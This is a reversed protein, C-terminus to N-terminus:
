PLIVRYYRNSRSATTATGGAVGAIDSTTLSFTFTTPTRTTVIWTGNLVAGPDGIGALTVTGGVELNHNAVTTITAVNAVLSANAVDVSSPVTLAQPDTFQILGYPAYNTSITVWNELDPSAQVEYVQNTLGEVRFQVGGGGVLHFSNTTVRPRSELANRDVAQVLPLDVDDLFAADLNASKSGDKIYRWELTNTGAAVTFAQIQWGSEGNIRLQRVGNLYFELFDGSTPGFEESSVRYGFSAPGPRCNAVLKLVTTQGHTITGSRVHFGGGTTANTALGGAAGVFWPAIGAANNTAWGINTRLAGAEFSDAILVPAFVATLSTDRAITGTAAVQVLAGRTVSYTFTTPNLVTVAASVVNFTPDTADNVSVTGGNALNHAAITTITATTVGNHAHTAIVSPIITVRLPNDLSLSDGGWTVFNFGNSAVATVQVVSGTGTPFSGSSPFVVGGASATVTLEYIPINTFSYELFIQGSSGALGDVAVYYRTGSRVAQTLESYIGFGTPTDDNANLATLRDVRTGTYIALLTDFNSNTTTISLLGDSPATFFYWVSKGGQKGVHLPEGPERTANLNNTTTAGVTGALELANALGDNFPDFARYIVQFSLPVSTNGSFDTAAVQIVNTGPTLLLPITWSNSGLATTSLGSNLRIFVQSVGIANTSPDIATGSLTLGANTVILGSPPNTVSMPGSVLNTIAVSPATTDPVGNFQVRLRIQGVTNTSASAVAIRYTTSAVATFNIFGQAIVGVDNTAAILTLNTLANGTYVAVVTDFSSGATDVLVPGSNSPSWNWWVSNAMNTVGAHSPEGFQTSGFTNDGFIVAGPDPVKALPPFNDNSPVTASRYPFTATFNTKGPATINLTLVLNTAFAPVNFTFVHRNDNAVADPLVGDNLFLQNTFVGPMTGIVTANNVPMLDNVTVTLPVTSGALLTSGAPPSLLAELLNDGVTTLARYANVRGGFSTNTALAAVPTTTFLIRNRVESYTMTNTLSFVLAAVGSVHAAAMSTGDQLSRDLTSIDYSNDSQFYTSAIEVGPAGVHVNNRGYNSYSALGDRRDLAAVSIINDLGFAAPYAAFQDINVGFNGASAVVLVGNSRAYNFIAFLQPDFSYTEFSCNLVKAGNRVAYDVCRIIASNRPNGFVDTAKLAMLRVNWAVGVHSRGNNPASGIVGAVRTGHGNDDNPDGSGTIGNIGFVDDVYTNADNDQADGVVEAPNRWMQAALDNHTYRIGSDIIGVIVNTSGVTIDWANTVGIDAGAVGGLQGQNRLGWLTGDQFFTDTPVLSLRGVYDPALTSFHGSQRLQAMRDRLETPANAATPRAADPNLDLMVLGPVAASEWVVRMQAAALAARATAVTVGPRLRATMATPHVRQGDLIVFSVGPLEAALASGLGLLLVLMGMWRAACRCGGSLPAAGPM